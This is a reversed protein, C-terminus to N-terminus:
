RVGAARNWLEGTARCDGEEEEVGGLGGGGVLEGTKGTRRVCSALDGLYRFPGGGM